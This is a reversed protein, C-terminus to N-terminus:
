DRVGRAKQYESDSDVEPLDFSLMTQKEHADAAASRHSAVHCDCYGGALELVSALNKEDKLEYIAPRRVM